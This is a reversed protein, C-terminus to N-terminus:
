QQDVGLFRLVGGPVVGGRMARNRLVERMQEFLAEALKKHGAVTPHTNWDGFDAYNGCQLVDTSLVHVNKGVGGADNCIEPVTTRFFATHEAAEPDQGLCLGTKPDVTSTFMIPVIVFIVAAPYKSRVDHLLTLM